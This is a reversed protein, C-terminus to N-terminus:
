GCRLNDNIIQTIQTVTAYPLEHYLPLCLVRQSIDEAVVMNQIQLFDLTSLAPYFYRRPFINHRNLAERVILMNAETRFLIPYYAFNYIVDNSIIPRTLPLDQLLRDYLTSLERRKRIIDGIKPLLCLGMAAHVESNKGNIGLGFFNEPGNHGFNIMYSIRHALEEDNTVIAGGEITHFLKTAHFSLTSIDGFNLLSQNKYQVGFAHAADYIVKLQHKAAIAEITEVDCPNGYVHTALIAQTHVSIKEEILRPNLCLTDPNIDAFVPKCDEWGISSATAIYSFPTTIIEGRIELAKIAVQLAITGNSVFFIHKVGLYRKLKEELELVLPGFNTVWGREWIGKLLVSYEELPPLYTKTVNIIPNSM